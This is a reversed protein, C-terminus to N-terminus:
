SWFPDLEYYNVGLEQMLAAHREEIKTTIAVRESLKRFLLLIAIFFRRDRGAGSAILGGPPANRRRIYAVPATVATTAAMAGSAIPLVAAWAVSAGPVGKFVSAWAAPPRYKPLSMVPFKSDWDVTVCSWAWCNLITVGPLSIFHSVASGDFPV